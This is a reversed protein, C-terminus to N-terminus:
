NKNVNITYEARYNLFGEGVTESVDTVFVFAEPDIEFVIEKLEVIQKRSVVCVLLTRHKGTHMGTMEIGTVGRELEKMLQQSIEMAQDSIIYGAKSFKLGNMIGDSVRTVIFIALLAYLAHELGFILAGALVVTGDLVALIQPDSFQRFRRQLLIALLDMGGTTSGVAFVLGLGTGMLVAGLLSNLLADQTPLDTIPIVGLYVTFIISSLLGRRLFRKGQLYFAFIFLPVNCVLNTVWLPIGENGAINGTVEKVIIGIGTVGGTVLHMPEFVCNVSAAMLGTGILILLGNLFRNRNRFGDM